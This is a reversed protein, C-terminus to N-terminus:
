PFAYFKKHESADILKLKLTTLQNVKIQKETLSTEHSAGSSRKQRVVARMHCMQFTQSWHAQPLSTDARRETCIEM